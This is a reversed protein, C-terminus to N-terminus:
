EFLGKVVIARRLSSPAAMASDGVGVRVAVRMVGEKVVGVAVTVAGVPATVLVGVRVGVVLSGYGFGVSASGYGEGPVM